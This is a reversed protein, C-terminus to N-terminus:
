RKECIVYHEHRNVVQTELVRFYRAVYRVFEEQSWERLHYVNDPPGLRSGLALRSRDPTSLGVYRCDIATIFQLLQDPDVLHEIVDISLVMDFSGSPPDDFDALRWNRDPYVARLHDLVPPKELGLTQYDGFYKLLKFGTGCGIDLITMLDQAAFFQQLHFYIRDQPRETSTRADFHSYGSRPLYFARIGYRDTTRGSALLALGRVAAGGAGFLVKRSYRAPKVVRRGLWSRLSTRSSSM